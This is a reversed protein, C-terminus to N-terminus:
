RARAFQHNAQVCWSTQGARGLEPIQLRLSRNKLMGKEGKNKLLEALLMDKNKVIM